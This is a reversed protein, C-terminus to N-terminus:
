SMVIGMAAQVLLSGPERFTSSSIGMISFTMVWGLAPLVLPRTWQVGHEFLLGLVLGM